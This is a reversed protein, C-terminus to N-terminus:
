EVNDYKASIINEDIVDNKVMDKNVTDNVAIQNHEKWTKKLEIMKSKLLDIETATPIMDASNGSSYIYEDKNKLSEISDVAQTPRFKTLYLVVIQYIINLIYGIIFFCIVIIFICIAIIYRNGNIIRRLHKKLEDVDSTISTKKCKAILDSVSSIKSSM